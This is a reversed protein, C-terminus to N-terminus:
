GSILVKAIAPDATGIEAAFRDSPLEPLGLDILAVDFEGPRFAFLARASNDFVNVEHTTSLLRSLLERIYDEYEVIFVMARQLSDAGENEDRQPAVSKSSLPVEVTLTTGNRPQSEVEITGGWRTIEGYVMSLGLGTDVVAKTTFLPEFVRCRTEDDIGVGNDTIQVCAVTKTERAQIRITGGEPLADVANLILNMYIEYLGTHTAEVRRIEQADVEVDITQGRGEMEAKRKPKTSKIAEVLDVSETHERDSGVARQLQRVLDAARHGARLVM